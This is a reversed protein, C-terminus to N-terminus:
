RIRPIYVPAQGIGGLIYKFLPNRRQLSANRCKGQSGPRCRNGTGELIKGPLPIMDYGSLIDISAGIIEQSMGQGLIANRGCEHINKVTIRHFRGYCLLCLSDKDFRQAVGIRIHHIYFGNRLNGM